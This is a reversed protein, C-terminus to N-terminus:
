PVAGEYAPSSAQYDGSGGEVRDARQNIAKVQDPIPPSGAGPMVDSSPQNIPASVAQRPLPAGPNQRQQYLMAIIAQYAQDVADQNPRPLLYFDPRNMFQKFTTELAELDDSPYVQLPAALTAVAELVEQSQKLAALQDLVQLPELRSSLLRKAQEKTILQMQLYQLTQNDRDQAESRFLSGAELFVEPDDLLRTNSLESWVLKGSRDLMRVMRSEDLYARMYCLVDIATEKVANEIADMTLQLQQADNQATANIAVGSSLGVVRKGLSTGHIGSQDYMESLLQAPQEVLYQPLPTPQYATPAQGNKYPIKEGPQDTFSRAPIEGEEPILIKPNGILKANAIIQSRTSNYLDQTDLLPEVLGLGWLYGEIESYRIVQVPLRKGPVETEFVKIGGAWVQHRGDRHYVDVLEYRDDPLSRPGYSYYRTAATAHEELEQAHDPYAEQIEEKTTYTVVGIWRSETPDNCYPEFRLDYSRIYDTKVEKKKTDWRTRLAVTGTLALLQSTHRLVERMKAASWYWRLAEESAQAKAVDDVDSSAPIAAMAPYDTVLRACVQRYINIIQNVVVKGKRRRADSPTLDERGSQYSLLQDGRTYAACRDWRLMLPSMLSKSLEIQSWLGPKKREEM